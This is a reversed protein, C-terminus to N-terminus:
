AAGGCMAGRLQRMAAAVRSKVTGLPIGLASAIESSSLGKFYALELVSRQTDPLERVARRMASRDPVRDPTTTTAARNLLVTTEDIAVARSIRASRVRDLARSRLRMFLWTRVTGRTPNYTGAKRWVELFVDHLLDEAERRDSLIRVATALMMSGYEDYLASLASSDGGALREILARDGTNDQAL